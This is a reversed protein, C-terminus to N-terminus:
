HKRIYTRGMLAQAQQPLGTGPFNVTVTDIVGDKETYTLEIVMDISKVSINIISNTSTMKTAMGTLTSNWAAGDTETIRGSVEDGAKISMTQETPSPSIFTVKFKFDVDLIFEKTPNDLDDVFTMVTEEASSKIDRDKCVISNYLANTKKAFEFIDGPDTKMTERFDPLMEEWNLRNKGKDLTTGAKVWIANAGHESTDAPRIMLSFFTATGSWYGTDANPDEQEPSNPNQLHITITYKGDKLTGDSFKVVGKAAPPDDESMSNSANLYIKFAPASVSEKGFV